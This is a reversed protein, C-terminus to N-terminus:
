QKDRLVLLQAILLLGPPPPSERFASVKVWCLREMGAHLLVNAFFGCASAQHSTEEHVKKRPEKKKEKKREKKLCPTRSGLSTNFNTLSSSSNRIKRDRGELAQSELCTSRVHMQHKTNSPLSEGM